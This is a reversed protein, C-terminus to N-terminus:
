WPAILRGGHSDALKTGDNIHDALDAPPLASVAFLEFSGFAAFAEFTGFSGFGGL